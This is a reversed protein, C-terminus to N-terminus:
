CNFGFFPENMHFDMFPPEPASMSQYEEHIVLGDHGLSNLGHFFDTRLVPFSETEFKLEGPCSGARSVDPPTIFGEEDYTIIIVSEPDRIGEEAVILHHCVQRGKQVESEALLGGIGGELGQLLGEPSEL